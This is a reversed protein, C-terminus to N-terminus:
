EKEAELEGVRKNIDDLTSKLYEAQGKLAEIEQTRTVARAGYAGAWPTGAAPYGGMVTPAPAGYAGAWPMGVAPYSGMAAWGPVGTAYFRHRWGRGGGGGRFGRGWAGFGRGFGGVAFGPAAQGACYGLGRGTM